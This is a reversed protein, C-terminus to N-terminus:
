DVKEKFKQMREKSKTFAECATYTFCPQRLHIELIFKNGVLLFRYIVDNM